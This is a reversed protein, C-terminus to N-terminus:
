APGRRNDTSMIAAGIDGSRPCGRVNRSELHVATAITSHQIVHSHTQQDPGGTVVPCVGAVPGRSSSGSVALLVLFVLNAGCAMAVGVHNGSENSITRLLREQRASRM